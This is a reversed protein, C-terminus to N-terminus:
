IEERIGWQVCPVTRPKPQIPEEGTDDCLQSLM